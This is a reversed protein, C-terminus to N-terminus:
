VHARGIVSDSPGGVYVHVAISKSPTDKDAAWGVVTINGYGGSVEDFYGEPNHTDQWNPTVFMQVYHTGAVSNGGARIKTTQNRQGVVNGNREITVFNWGGDSSRTTADEAVIAVHASPDWGNYHENSNVMPMAFRLDGKKPQYDIYTSFDDSWVKHITGVRLNKAVANHPIVSSPIGAM